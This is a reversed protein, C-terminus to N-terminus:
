HDIRTPKTSDVIFPFIQGKAQLGRWSNDYGPAAFAPARERRTEGLSTTSADLRVCRHHITALTTVLLVNEEHEIRLVYLRLYVEFALVACLMFVAAVAAVIRDAPGDTPNPATFIVLWLCLGAGLWIAAQAVRVRWARQNLYLTKLFADRSERSCLPARLVWTTLTEM